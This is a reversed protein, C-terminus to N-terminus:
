ILNTKYDIHLIVNKFKDIFDNIQFDKSEPSWSFRKVEIALINGDLYKYLITSNLNIFHNYLASEVLDKEVNNLFIVM